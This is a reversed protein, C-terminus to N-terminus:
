AEFKINLKDKVVRKGNNKVKSAFLRFSEELYKPEHYIDLHDPDVSTIVAIDPNLNLFSRDYEDAEAVTIQNKSVDGLLLNTNYNQTVGGLFATVNVNATKLIHAIISSTTTKGHTGAVAITFSNQTILGLVEARKKIIYNNEKFYNYESHDTPIAPTYIILTQHKANQVQSKLFEINDDFHVAIGEAILESTLTTPTKDYGLVQLGQAHFYRALASMGIGGIGLFYITKFNQMM